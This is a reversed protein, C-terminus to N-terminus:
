SVVLFIIHPFGDILFLLFLLYKVIYFMYGSAYNGDLPLLEQCLCVLYPICAQYRGSLRYWLIWYQLLSSCHHPLQTGPHMVNWLRDYIFIMWHDNNLYSICFTDWCCCVLSGWHWIYPFPNVAPFARFRRVYSMSSSGTSSSIISVFCDYYPLLSIITPWMRLLFFIYYILKNVLFLRGRHLYIWQAILFYLEDGFSM